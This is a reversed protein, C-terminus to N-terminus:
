IIVREAYKERERGLVNFGYTPDAPIWRGSISNYYETYVHHLDKKEPRRVAVFRWPTATLKFYSALAIAKDDCDGGPGQMNMTYLPRMLTEEDDPDNRFPLNKILNFVDPLSLHAYPAMDLYFDDVMRRMLKGTEVALGNTLVHSVRM